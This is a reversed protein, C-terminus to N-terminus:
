PGNVSKEIDIKSLKSSLIKTTSPEAPNIDICYSSFTNESVEDLYMRWIKFDIESIFM